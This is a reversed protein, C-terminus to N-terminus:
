MGLEAEEAPIGADDHREVCGPEMRDDTGEERVVLRDDADVAEFRSVIEHGLCEYHDVGEVYERHRCNGCFQEAPLATDEM